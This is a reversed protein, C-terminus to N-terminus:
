NTLAGPQGQLDATGIPQEGWKRVNPGPMKHQTEQYLLIPASM